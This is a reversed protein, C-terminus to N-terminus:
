ENQKKVDFLNYREPSTLASFLREKAFPIEKQINKLLNKIYERQTNNNQPCPNKFVPLDAAFGNIDKEEIYLLPRIVTVGTRAMYASPKFSSLRGEYFMSLLFTEIFDDAHHGLAVKRCGTQRATNCLAGRRMKACLSCPNKEKRIDFVVSAIETHVVALPVDIKQCYSKLAEFGAEDKDKFGLDITIAQLDYKQPSFRQYAKLATLLTLSDKGGSLGVAINDGEDILNYDAVAKRLKSLINQLTM